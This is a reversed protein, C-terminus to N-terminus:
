QPPTGKRKWYKNYCLSCFKGSSSVVLRLGNLDGNTSLEIPESHKDEGKIKINANIWYKLDNYAKLSFRGYDDTKAVGGSENFEYQSIMLVIDANAVPKGDSRVAVGSIIRETLPPFLRFDFDKLHEGEALTILTAQSIDTVGPYYTRPHIPKYSYPNPLSKTLSFGLFYQSPPLNKFEFKGSQNDSTVEFVRPNTKNAESAVVLEVITGAKPEGKETFLTGSIQGNSLAVMNQEICAGTTLSVKGAKNEVELGNPLDSKISYEDPPIESFLYTGKEDTMTTFTQKESQIEVKINRIPREITEPFGFGFSKVKRVVRGYLMASPNGAIRNRLYRVVGDAEAVLMAHDALFVSNRESSKRKAYVLYTEDQVFEDYPCDVDVYKEFVLEGLASRKQMQIATLVIETQKEAIGKFSEKITLLVLKNRLIKKSIGTGEDFPESYNIEKVTGILVVDATEYLKCPAFPKNTCQASVVCVLGILFTGILLIRSQNSLM